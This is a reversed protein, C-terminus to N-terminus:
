SKETSRNHYTISVVVDRGDLTVMCTGSATEPHYINSDDHQRRLRTMAENLVARQFDRPFLRDFISPKM